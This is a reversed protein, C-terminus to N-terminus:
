AAIKEEVEIPEQSALSKETIRAMWKKVTEGKKVEFERGYNEILTKKAKELNRVMKPSLTKKLESASFEVNKMAGWNAPSDLSVIKIFVKARSFFEQNENIEAGYKKALKALDKQIKNREKKEKAEAFSIINDKKAKKNDAMNKIGAGMVAGGLAGGAAQAAFGSPLIPEATNTINEGYGHIIKKATEANL